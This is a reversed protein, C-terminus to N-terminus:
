DARLSLVPDVRAARRAPMLCAAVAVALLALAVASLVAPDVPSVEYLQSALMRGGGLAAIVGLAVGGLALRGGEGVIMRAVAGAPAGLAMRIGFEGRRQSVGYAIVAYLGVSALVLAVAAFTGLLSLTLRRARLLEALADEMTRANAVPQDADVSQVARELVPAFTAASGTTHVVVALWRWRYQANSMYIQGPSAADLGYTKVHGVVGVITAREARAPLKMTQGIPDENPFARRAFVEDVLAVPMTEWRDDATIARGRVLRIGMADLYGPSVIYRDAEPADAGTLLPRGGIDSISIRDLYGSLPVQSTFGVARVGPTARLREELQAYFV